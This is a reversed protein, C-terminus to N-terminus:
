VLAPAANHRSVARPAPLARLGTFTRSLIFPRGLLRSAEIRTPADSAARATDRARRYLDRADARRGSLDALKGLTLEIRGRIWLEPLRQRAMNLDAAAADLRGLELRALGRRYYWVAHEGPLRRRVDADLREIGGSLIEDAERVRGARIAAAGRELVLIRNEPFETSMSSLLRFADGHRGERSYILVLATRAELRSESEAATAAELLAIARAKDGGFGALYAVMRSALGLGAVAYRYTGVVTGAGVRTPELALVREQINYARRAMGFAGRVRGQVSATWSAQLGYAAGADYLADPDRPSRALRMEALAIARTVSTQFDAAISAPPDPLRISSGTLGGMYHDVTVAGRHFLAELWLIGALTRHARSEDPWRRTAARATRLATEHDLNYAARYAAGLEDDLTDAASVPASVACTGTVAAICIVNLWPSRRLM